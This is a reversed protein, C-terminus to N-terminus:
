ENELLTYSEAIGYCYKSRCKACAGFDMLALLVNKGWVTLFPIVQIAPWAIQAHCTNITENLNWRYSKILVSFLM